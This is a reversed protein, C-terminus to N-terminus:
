GNVSECTVPENPYDRKFGDKHETCCPMFTGNSYRLIFEAKHPCQTITGEVLDRVACECLDIPAAKDADLDFLIEGPIQIM